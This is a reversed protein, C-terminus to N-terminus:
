TLWGIYRLLLLRWGLRTTPFPLFRRWYRQKDWYIEGTWVNQRFVPCYDRRTVSKLDDTM